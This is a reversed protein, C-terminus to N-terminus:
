YIFLHTAKCENGAVGAGESTTQAFTPHANTGSGRVQGCQASRFPLAGSLM